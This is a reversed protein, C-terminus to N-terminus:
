VLATRAAAGAVHGAAAAASFDPGCKSNLTIPRPLVSVTKASAEM